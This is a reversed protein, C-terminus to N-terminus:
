FLSVVAITKDDSKNEVDTGFVGEFIVSVDLIKQCIQEASDGNKITAAVTSQLFEVGMFEGQPSCSETIGDTFLVIHQIDATAPVAHLAYTSNEVVGLIIDPESSQSVFLEGRRDYLIPNEHGANSWTIYRNGLDIQLCIASIFMNEADIKCLFNNLEFLIEKPSYSYQCLLRFQGLVLLSFFAATLDKGTSDGVFIYIYPDKVVVDYLDGSLTRAAVFRAAISISNYFPDQLSQFYFEPIMKKQLQAALELETKSRELDREKLMLSQINIRMYELSKVLQDIELIRNSSPVVFTNNFKNQILDSAQHSIESITDTIFAIKKILFRRTGYLVIKIFLFISLIYIITFIFIWKLDYELIFIVEGKVLSIKKYISGEYYFWDFFKHTKTQNYVSDLKSIIKTNTIQTKSNEIGYYWNSDHAGEYPKSVYYIHFENKHLDLQRLSNLDHEFVHMPIDFVGVAYVEKQKLIPFTYTMSNDQNGGWSVQPSFILEKKEKLITTFWPRLYYKTQHEQYIDDMTAIKLQGQGNEFIYEGYNIIKPNWFYGVGYFYQSTNYIVSFIRQFSKKNTSNISNEQLSFQVEKASFNIQQEISNSLNKMSSIVDEVPALTNNLYIRYGRVWLLVSIAIIILYIFKSLKSYINNVLLTHKM